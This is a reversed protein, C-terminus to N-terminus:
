SHAGLFARPRAVVPGVVRPDLLLVMTNRYIESSVYGHHLKKYRMHATGFCRFRLPLHHILRVRM